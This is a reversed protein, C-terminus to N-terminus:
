GSMNQAMTPKVTTTTTTTKSMTTEKDTAAPTPKTSMGCALSCVFKKAFDFGLKAQCADCTASKIKAIGFIKGERERVNESLIAQPINIVFFILCFQAFFHFIHM